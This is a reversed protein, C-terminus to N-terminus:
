RVRIKRVIKKFEEGRHAYDKFMDFSAAGPSFVVRAETGTMGAENFAMRVAGNLDEVVIVKTLNGIIKRVKNKNEGFLIVVRAGYKKLAVRLPSHDRVKDRGGAILIKGERNFAQLAAASTTPNTSASDNYFSIKGIKRVFELRHELGRFDLAAKRITKEDIGISGAVSAAMVANRFNHLGPIKLDPQSFLHFKKYNIPIKLAPSKLALKKSNANDSFFFIRDSKKQYRGINAKAEYYERLNLHADQHDPFVDLVVAITPSIGLDQLQFSSLELIAWDYKKGNKLFGIAPRGINGALFVKKEAARLIEYLLTSTTGKGKTGTIGIIKGGYEEFFIKTGSSFEVGRSRASKLQPLNYPVGPSRFVWDFGSIKSLYNKGGERDLIVIKSGRFRSSGKLFGFLSKGERGFGLIALKRKM